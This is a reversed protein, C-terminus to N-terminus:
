SNIYRLLIWIFKNHKCGSYKRIKQINHISVDTRLTSMNKMQKKRAQLLTKWVQKCQKPNEHMLEVGKKMIGIDEMGAHLFFYKNENTSLTKLIALYDLPCLLDLSM